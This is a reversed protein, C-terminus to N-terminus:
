SIQINEIVGIKAFSGFYFYFVQYAVFSSYLDRWSYEDRMDSFSLYLIQIHQFTRTYTKTQWIVLRFPIGSLDIFEM